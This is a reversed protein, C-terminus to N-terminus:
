GEIIQIIPRSQNNELEANKEADKLNDFVGFSWFRVPAFADGDVVIFKDIDSDEVTTGVYVAEFEKKTM